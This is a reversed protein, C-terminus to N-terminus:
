WQWTEKSGHQYHSISACNGNLYTSKLDVMDKVLPCFDKLTVMMDAEGGKTTYTKKPAVAFNTDPQVTSINYIPPKLSSLYHSARSVAKVCREDIGDM